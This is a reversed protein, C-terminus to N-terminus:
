VQLRFGPPFKRRGAPWALRGGETWDEGRGAFTPDATRFQAIGDSKCGLVPRCNEGAPWALRGGEM